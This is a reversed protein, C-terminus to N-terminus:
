SFQRAWDVIQAVTTDTSERASFAAGAEDSGLPELTELQSGLLQPHMFHGSRQALRQAVLEAEGHLHAFRVHAGAQRLIDRYARQLASCSVVSSRGAQAQGDIQDRIAALWPARDGDTLPEGATLKAINSSSHLEDAEIFPWGLEHAVAAGITSKGVGSVGMVVLAVPTM